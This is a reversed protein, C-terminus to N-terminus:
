TVPRSLGSDTDTIASIDVIVSVFVARKDPATSGGRNM